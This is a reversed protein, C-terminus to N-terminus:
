LGLEVRQLAMKLATASATDKNHDMLFAEHLCKRWCLCLAKFVWSPLIGDKEYKRKAAGLLQFPVQNDGQERRLFNRTNRKAKKDGVTTFGDDDDASTVSSADTEVTSVTPTPSPASPLASPQAAPEPKKGGWPNVKPAPAFTKAKMEAARAKDAQQKEWEMLTTAQSVNASAFAPLRAELNNLAALFKAAAAPTNRKVSPFDEKFLFTTACDSAVDELGRVAKIRNFVAPLVAQVAAVQSKKLRGTAMVEMLLNVEKPNLGSTDQNLIFRVIGFLAEAPTFKSQSPM